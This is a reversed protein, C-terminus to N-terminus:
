EFLKPIRSAVDADIMQISSNQRRIQDAGKLWVDDHRSFHRDLMVTTEDADGSVNVDMRVLQEDIFYVALSNASMDAASLVGDGPEIAATKQWDSIAIERSCRELLFARKSGVMAVREAQCDFNDFGARQMSAMVVDRAQGIRVDDQSIRVGPRLEDDKVVSISKVKTEGNEVKTAANTAANTNGACGSLLLGKLLVFGLLWLAAFSAGGSPETLPQGNARPVNDGTPPNPQDPVAIYNALWSIYSSVHTYIGFFNPEACGRGFSTIGVQQMVGDVEAFLPGGSDGICTDVGGAQFGACTLFGVIFGNYSIPANCVDRSVFPVTASRFSDPFVAGASDSFSTAGWGAIWGSQGVLTESDEVFLNVPPADLETALELLAIDNYSADVADDYLPHVFINVVIHEEAIPDNRLDSVGEIIRVSTNSVLNNFANHVCHAATMVWRSAVVTGGCFQRDIASFNGPRVLAVVSPWQEIAAPRGGIIRPTFNDVIANIDLVPGDINDDASNDDASAPGSALGSTITLCAVALFVPAGARSWRQLCRKFHLFPQIM